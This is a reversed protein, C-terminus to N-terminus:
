SKNIHVRFIGSKLLRLISLISESNWTYKYDVVNEWSQLIHHFDKVADLTSVGCFDFACM